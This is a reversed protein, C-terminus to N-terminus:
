KKKKSGNKRNAAKEAKAKLEDALKKQHAELDFNIQAMVKPPLNLDATSAAIRENAFVIQYAIEVWKSRPKVMCGIMGDFATLQLTQDAQNADEGINIEELVNNSDHNLKSQAFEEFTMNIADGNVDGISIQNDDFDIAINDGFENLNDKDLVPASFSPFREVILGVAAYTQTISKTVVIILTNLNGM